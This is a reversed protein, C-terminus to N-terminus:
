GHAKSAVYRHMQSETAYKATTTVASQLSDPFFGHFVAEIATRWQVIWRCHCFHRGFPEDYQLQMWEAAQWKPRQAHPSFRVRSLPHKWM